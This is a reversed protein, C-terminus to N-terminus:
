RRARARRLAAAIWEEAPVPRLGAPTAYLRCTLGPTRRHAAGPDVDADDVRVSPSGLFGARIAHEVSRIETLVLPARERAALRRVIPLLEAFGPCGEVYLVEITPEAMEAM